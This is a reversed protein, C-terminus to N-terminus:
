DSSRPNLEGAKKFVVVHKGASLIVSSRDTGHLKQDTQLEYKNLRKPQYLVAHYNSPIEISYVYELDGNREWSVSVDADEDVPVVGKAWTIRDSVYPVFRITRFGPKEPSIGLMEGSMFYLPSGGWAHSYDGIYGFETKDQWNEKLTHTEWDLGNKWRDLCSLGDTDFKKIHALASLIFSLFYPQLDIEKQKLVYDMISAQKDPSAMDYLVALSNVHPSYTVIDADEPLWFHPSQQSIFAVGDRYIGKADDWLKKNFGDKIKEALRLNEKSASNNHVIANFAAAIVLSRYYFATMYGMGIVAPPHHANYGNIKIWDMFMYDPAQSVLFDEDLYSAFRENLANVHPLLEMVLLSDGTFQFYNYLMQVWLLSYSTHFMDYNNKQLIRATKILDQRALWPDGFAYFNSQSEILYDGTCALPEQHRPSDFHLSNMCLQTTWRAVDWLKTYFTDSCAFSGRYSVPYTSFLAAISDIKMGRRSTVDVTLYRFVNLQPTTFSNAGEKCIYVLPRNVSSKERPFIKVTDGEHASLSLSYYASMNREFDLTFSENFLICDALSWSTRASDISTLSRRINNAERPYRTPIPIQSMVLYGSEVTDQISANPWLGDDFHIDRWGQIERTANYVLGGEKVSLCSDRQCKWTTDTSVITQNLGFDLDCLFRGKGSTTESLALDFSYVEAAIVNNGVRLHKKVDHITFFWHQPPAHDEYDSGINPPGQCIFQGNLYIRFSVDGTVCLIARSPIKDLDFKKRFLATCRNPPLNEHIWESRTNQFKPFQKRNLWLWNGSWNTKPFLREPTFSLQSSYIGSSDATIVGHADHTQFPSTACSISLIFFFFLPLFATKTM